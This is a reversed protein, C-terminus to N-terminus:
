LEQLIRVVEDRFFIGGCPSCRVVNQGLVVWGSKCLLYRSSDGCNPCRAEVYLGAPEVPDHTFRHQSHECPPQFDLEKFLDLAEDIATSM